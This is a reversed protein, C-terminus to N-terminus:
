ESSRNIRVGQNTNSDQDPMNASEGLNGIKREECMAIGDAKSLKWDPLMGRESIPEGTTFGTSTGKKAKQAKLAM